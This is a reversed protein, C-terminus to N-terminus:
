IERFDEPTTIDTPEEFGNEFTIAKSNNIDHNGPIVFVPIGTEEEFAALKEALAEHSKKEGDKTMDGPILVCTEGNEAANRLVGDLANTLLSDADDYEKHKNYLWEKYEESYDGKLEKAFYHIDSIVGFRKLHAAYLQNFREKGECIFFDETPLKFLKCKLLPSYVFGFCLVSYVKCPALKFGEACIDHALTLTCKFPYTFVACATYHERSTRIMEIGLYIVTYGLHYLAVTNCHKGLVTNRMEASVHGQANCVLPHIM